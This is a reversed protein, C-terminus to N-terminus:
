QEPHDILFEKTLPNNAYVINHVHRDSYYRSTWRNLKEIDDFVGVVISRKNQNKLTAFFYKTNAKQTTKWRPGIVVSMRFSYPGRANYVAYGRDIYERHWHGTRIYISRSDLGTELIRLQLFAQDQVLERCSHSGDRLYSIHRALANSLRKAFGLFARKEFENVLAYVAFDPLALMKQFLHEDASDIM